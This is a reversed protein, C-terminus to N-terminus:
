RGTQGFATVWSLSLLSRHEGGRLAGSSGLGVRLASDTGAFGRAAWLQAQVIAGNVGQVGGGGAGGLLAEAGAQWGGRVPATAWGGGVLGVSYAGVGGGYASHAQGSLYTHPGIWRHLALGMTEIARTSGDRRTAGDIHQLTAGWEARAVTGSRGPTGPAADPELDASLWLEARTGRLAPDRGVIRGLAAGAQWGPALRASLTGEARAMLGGGTPVAGGGGLGAAGRVGAQWGDALTWEQGLHGLIEMYGSQATQVAAAAEVGWLTGGDGLRQTLRTGVLAVDLRTDGRLRMQAGTLAIRDFGLGSRTGAAMREGVSALPQHTFDGRWELALGLQESRIATGAFRVQSLSVGAQLPGLTQLLTLSPRIMLGDGVPAAAGGGGGLALGASLTLGPRLAWRQQLEGGLVFLGGRRGTAAGYTVPGAWLGPQLEFLVSAAALGMREHGPLRVTEFGTLLSVPIAPATDAASATLPTGVLLALALALTM